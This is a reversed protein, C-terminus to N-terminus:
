VYVCVCMCVYMCVYVCVYVCVCWEGGHIGGRIGRLPRPDRARLRVLGRYIYADNTYNTLIITDIITICTVYSGGSFPTYCITYPTHHITCPPCSLILKHRIDLTDYAMYIGYAMHWIYIDITTHRIGYVYSM